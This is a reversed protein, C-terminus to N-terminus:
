SATGSQVTRVYAASISQHALFSIEKRTPIGAAAIQDLLTIEAMVSNLILVGLLHRFFRAGGYYFIRDRNGPTVAQGDIAVYRLCVPLVNVHARVATDFLSVKFPQVNDGNSTTGEPFLMVTFGDRLLKEISEIERRLGSPTRREVFLSGALRALLGLFITNRLEVSTIFVVPTVSSLLLIDLWSLHNAVILKGEGDRYEPRRNVSFTIGLLRLAARSFAATNRTLRYLRDRSKGPLIRLFTAVAVFALILISATFGKFM